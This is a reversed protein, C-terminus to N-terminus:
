FGHQKHKYHNYLLYGGAGVVLVGGTIIALRKYYISRSLKLDDNLRNTWGKGNYKWNSLSQLWKLRANYLKKPTAFFDRNLDQISSYGFSKLANGPGSGWFAEAVMPRLAPNRISNIKNKEWFDKQFIKEADDWTISLLGERTAPKGVISAGRKQWYGITVGHNTLGGTDEEKPRGGVGGEWKKVVQFTKKSLM